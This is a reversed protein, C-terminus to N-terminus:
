VLPTEKGRLDFDWMSCGGNQIQSGLCLVWMGSCFVPLFMYLSCPLCMCDRLSSEPFLWSYALLESCPWSAALCRTRSCLVLMELSPTTPGLPCWRARGYFGTMVCGGEETPKGKRCSNVRLKETNKKREKRKKKTTSAILNLAECTFDGEGAERYTRLAPM